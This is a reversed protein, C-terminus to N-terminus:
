TTERGPVVPARRSRGASRESVTLRARRAAPERGIATPNPIAVGSRAARRAATQGVAHDDAGGEDAGGFLGTVGPLFGDFGERAREPM